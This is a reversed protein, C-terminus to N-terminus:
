LMLRRKYENETGVDVGAKSLARFTAKVEAGGFHLLLGLARKRKAATINYGTM